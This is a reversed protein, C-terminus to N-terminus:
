SQTVYRKWWQKLLNNSDLELDWPLHQANNVVKDLAHFFVINKQKSM